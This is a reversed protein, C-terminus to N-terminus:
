QLLVNESPLIPKQTHSYYPKPGIWSLIVPLLVVGHFLGFLVVLLFIKFFTQFTYADSLGLMSVGILTSMGGYLVASGITSMTAVVRDNRSGDAQTLFTHGIHTAYDVCLGIALQLGICTALDITLGWRQMFGGVNVMSLVVCIFIWFCIQLNAILILTCAMVCLLALGMNRLVETEILEDTIWTAFIKSWATSFKDGTALGIGKSISMIRRMAPLHEKPGSFQHFQFDYSSMLIKSAPLGCELDHQFRFNAQFRAGRPSFLFKSLFLNFENDSLEGLFADKQYYVKVFDRFPKIWGHVDTVIDSSNELQEVMDNLKPFEYTYNVAGVFIGADFGSSPFYKTKEVVFDSLFTDRPIFWAPDFRQELRFISEISFGLCVATLLVVLLKGPWTLIIKSYITHFIRGSLDRQSCENPKYNSYQIWPAIGNRGQELRRQDLTFCAVFFTVVFLFTVLVSVASYICYSQLCPLITTAGIVFAMVDTLTTVTISVGGHKLMYGIREPLPLRKRAPSLKEWCAIIVFMDDVGLGMLLFPLSTHVPGYSVGFLSCLGCGVVFSMGVALLGMCGLLVRMEVCNFKSIVFQVYIVMIFVGVMLIDLDQFMTKGSIDGFSRASMYTLDYISNDESAMIKEFVNEWELCEESAWDATGANNGSKDMDIATFNLDALWIIQLSKAGVIHGSSNFSLGGILSRYNKLRGLVLSHENTNIKYLIEEKTLKALKRDNHGWLDLISKVYCEKDVADVMRCFTAANWHVSPDFAIDTKNTKRYSKEPKLMFEMSSDVEPIKFCIDNWSIGSSTRSNLVKKELLAVKQLVEPTLIDDAQIIAVEPRFGRQFTRMLWDADHVFQSNTPVWLKMPNKEQRFRFFGLSAIVVFLWCLAITRKPRSAVRYGLSYFFNETRVVIAFSFREYWKLNVSDSRSDEM